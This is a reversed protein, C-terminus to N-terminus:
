VKEYLFTATRGSKQAEQLKDLRWYLANKKRSIYEHVAETPCLFVTNTNGDAYLHAYDTLGVEKGFYHDPVGAFWRISLEVNRLEATEQKQDTYEYHKNAKTVVGQLIFPEDYIEKVSYVFVGDVVEELRSTTPVLSADSTGHKCKCTKGM